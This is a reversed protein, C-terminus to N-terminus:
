SGDILALGNADVAGMAVEQYVAIDRGLTSVVDAALTNVPSVFTRFAEAVGIVATTATLEPEVIFPLNLTQGSLSVAVTGASNAPSIAAYLPRGDDADTKALSAWMATPLLVFDPFRRLDALILACGDVLDDRFDATADVVHGTGPTGAGPPAAEVAAVVAANVKQALAVIHLRVVEELYAPTSRRITQLSMNQGGAFTSISWDAKTIETATSEIESNETQTDVTPRVSVKPQSVSGVGEELPRQNFAEVTPTYERVLDIVENIWSVKVLGTQETTVTTDLARTYRALEDGEVEGTAAAFLFEGFSRFRGSTRAPASDGGPRPAKRVGRNSRQRGEGTDDTDDDDVQDDDVQDDVQDNDDDRTKTDTDM